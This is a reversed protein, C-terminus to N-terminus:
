ATWFSITVIGPAASILAIKAIEGTGFWRDLPNLENGSGDSTSSAPVVATPNAGYAAFFDVNAGFSAYVVNAPVVVATDVDVYIM